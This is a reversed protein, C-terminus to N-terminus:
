KKQSYNRADSELLCYILSDLFEGNYLFNERFHAEKKFGIKELLKISQVNKPNVNAEISHLKLESFGFEILIKFTETMIGQGWYDPHISYGIEARCHPKILRWYSFSGILQNNCKIVIAWNIGIKNKFDSIISSIATASDSPYKHIISDMYKMVKEDSRVNFLADKDKKEFKRFLLRDSELVPFKNFTKYNLSTNM